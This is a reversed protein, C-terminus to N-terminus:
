EDGPRFEIGIWTTAGIAGASCTVELCLASKSILSDLLVDIVLAGEEDATKCAVDVLPAISEAVHDFDNVMDVFAFLVHECRVPEGPTTTYIAKGCVPCHISSPDGMWHVSATSM